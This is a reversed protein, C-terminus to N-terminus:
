IRSSVKQLIIYQDFEKTKRTSWTIFYASPIKLIGQSTKIQIHHEKKDVANNMNNSCNIEHMLTIYSLQKMIKRKELALFQWIYSVSSVFILFFLLSVLAEGILFGKQPKSHAYLM